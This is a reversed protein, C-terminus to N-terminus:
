SRTLDSAPEETECGGLYRAAAEVVATHAPAIEQAKLIHRVASKRRGRANEVQALLLHATPLAPNRKLAERALSRAEEQHALGQRMLCEALTLYIYENVDSCRLARRLEDIAKEIQGTQIAVKALVLRARGGHNAAPLAARAFKYAWRPDEGSNALRTAAQLCATPGGDALIRERRIGLGGAMGLIRIWEIRAPKAAPPGSKLMLEVTSTLHRTVRETLIELNDEAKRDAMAATAEALGPHAHLHQRLRAEIASVDTSDVLYELFFFGLLRETLAAVPAPTETFVQELAALTEVPRTMHRYESRAMSYVPTDQLLAELGVGSNAVLVARCRAILAHISGESVFVYRSKSVTELWATIAGSRCLPHRKIVVPRRHTEALETVRRLTDSQEWPLHRLVRDHDVQLPLFIFDQLRAIEPELPTGPQELKSLNERAISERYQKIFKRARRLDFDKGAAQLAPDTAMQSWGSYGCSDFFWYRPLAGPKLCYVQDGIEESHYAYRIEAANQVELRQGEALRARCLETKLELRMAAQIVNDYATRIIDHDAYSEFAFQNPIDLRLKM